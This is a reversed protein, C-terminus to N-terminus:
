ASEVVRDLLNNIEAGIDEGSDIGFPLVPINPDSPDVEPMGHYIAGRQDVGSPTESGAQSASIHFDRSEQKQEGVGAVHIFDRDHIKSRVQDLRDEINIGLEEVLPRGLIFEDYDTELVLFRVNRLLLPGSRLEFSSVRKSENWQRM